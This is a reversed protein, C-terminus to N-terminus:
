HCGSAVDPDINRLSQAEKLKGAQLEMAKKKATIRDELYQETGPLMEPNRWTMNIIRQYQKRQGELDQKQYKDGGPRMQPVCDCFRVKKAPDVREEDTLDFLYHKQAKGPQASM